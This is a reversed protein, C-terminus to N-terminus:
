IGLKKRANKVYEDSDLDLRPVKETSVKLLANFFEKEVKEKSKEDRGEVRCIIMPQTNSKRILAQGVWGKADHWKIIGGDTRDIPLNMEEFIMLARQVVEEKEEVVNTPIRINLEPTAPYRPIEEDLDIFTKGEKRAKAIITLVKTAALTADDFIWNEEHGSMQHGSLEAALVVPQRDRLDVERGFLSISKKGNKIAEYIKKIGEKIFAFGTPTVIYTGGERVIFEEAIRSFKVEGM